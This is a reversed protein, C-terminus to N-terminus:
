GAATALWAIGRLPKGAIAEALEAELRPRIRDGAQGAQRLAAGAPGTQLLLSVNTDFPLDVRSLHVAGFGAGTLLAAFRDRDSLGFPGAGPGPDPGAFHKQIVRLAIRAWDNEEFPGWAAAAFRGGPRLASRLNRFAAPPDEFFMIGFRSFCLAFKEEFRCTQADAVLYRAGSVAERRAVELFPACVDIGLADGTRRALQLTTEGFGCGVDLATEGPRPDLAEIAADGYPSLERTLQVRMALWRQANVENWIRIQEANAM